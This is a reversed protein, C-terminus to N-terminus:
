NPPQWKTEMWLSVQGFSFRHNPGQLSPQNGKTEQLHWGFPPPGQKPMPPQGKTGNLAVGWLTWSRKAKSFASLQHTDGQKGNALRFKTPCVWTAADNKGSPVGRFGLFGSALGCSKQPHEVKEFSGPEKEFLGVEMQTHRQKPSGVKLCFFSSAGLLAGLHRDRAGWPAAPPSRGSCPARSNWFNLRRTLGLM